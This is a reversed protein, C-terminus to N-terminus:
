GVGLWSEMALSLDDPSRLDPAVPKGCQAVLIGGKQFVPAM